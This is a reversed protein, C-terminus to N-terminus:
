YVLRNNEERISNISKGLEEKYSNSIKLNAIDELPKESDIFSVLEYFSDLDKSKLAAELSARSIVSAMGIDQAGESKETFSKSEYTKEDATGEWHISTQKRTAIWSKNKEDLEKYTRVDIGMAKAVVEDSYREGYKLPKEQAMLKITRSRERQFTALEEGLHEVPLDQPRWPLYTDLYGSFPVSKRENFKELAQMVWYTVQSDREEKEPLFILITDMFNKLTIYSFATYFPLFGQLFRKSLDVAERRYTSARSLVNYDRENKGLGQITSIIVSRIYTSSLGIAKYEGPKEERVRAIGKLNDKIVKALEENAYFKVSGVERLPAKMFSEIETEKDWVRPAFIGEVIQDGVPLGNKERWISIAHYPMRYSKAGTKSQVLYKSNDEIWKKVEEETCTALKALKEVSWWMGDSCIAGIRFNTELKKFEKKSYIYNNKLLDHKSQDSIKKALRKADEDLTFELESLVAKLEERQEKEEPKPRGVRLKPKKETSLLQEEKESM